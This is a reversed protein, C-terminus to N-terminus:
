QSKMSRRDFHSRRPSAVVDGVVEPDTGDIPKSRETREGGVLGLRGVDVVTVMLAVILDALCVVPQGEVVFAQACRVRGVVQRPEVDEGWKTAFSASYWVYL